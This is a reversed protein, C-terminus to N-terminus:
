ETGLLSDALGRALAHSHKETLHSYRKTTNMSRHGLLEGIELLTAGNKALFSACSHRLDHWHFDEIGARSLATTFSRRLRIPNKRSVKSPFILDGKRAEKKTILLPLVQNVLPLTRDEGNKTDRLNITQRDFDIDSWRLGLVESQRAGTTISLMVAPYLDPSESEKCAILLATLEQEELFRKRQNNEALKAVQQMPSSELWHWHKVCTTLVSALTALYRNTTAPSRTSRIDDRIASIADGKIDSLNLHGIQNEWFELHLKYPRQTTPKKDPLIESRYREIAQLLTRNSGRVVLGSNLQEQEVETRKAWRKADKLTTFTRSRQKGYQRIRAKYHVAGNKQPIKTITAM